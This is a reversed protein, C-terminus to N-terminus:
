KGRRSPPKHFDSEAMPVGMTPKPEPAAHVEVPVFREADQKGVEELGIVEGVKFPFSRQTRYLGAKADVVDLAMMNVRAQEPTLGILVGGGVYAPSGAIRYQKM